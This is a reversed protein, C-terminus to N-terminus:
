DGNKGRSDGQKMGAFPKDYGVKWLNNPVPMVKKKKSSKDMVPAKMGNSMKAMIEEM